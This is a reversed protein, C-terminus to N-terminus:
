RVVKATKILVPTNPVNAHMGQNSTPVVKIKDVVDMGKTVKGFVCYGWGRPSKGKHDLAPNDKVNIFFQASASHPARTRAM